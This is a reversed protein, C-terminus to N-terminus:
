FALMVHGRLTRSAMVAQLFLLESTRTLVILDFARAICGYRICVCAVNFHPCPECFGYRLIFPSVPLDAQASEDVAAVTRRYQAAM